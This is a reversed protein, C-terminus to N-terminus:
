LTIDGHSKAPAIMGCERKRKRERGTNMKREATEDRERERGRERAFLEIRAIGRRRSIIRISRSSLM